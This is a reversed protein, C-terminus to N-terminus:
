TSCRVDASCRVSREAAGESGNPFDIEDPRRRSSSMSANVMTWRSPLSALGSSASLRSALEVALSGVAESPTAGSDGATSGSGTSGTRAAGTRRSGRRMLGVNPSQRGAAGREAHPRQDDRHLRRRGQGFRDPGLRRGDRGARLDQLLAPAPCRCRVITAAASAPDSSVGNRRSGARRDRSPRRLGSPTAPPTRQPPTRAPSPRRTDRTEGHQDVSTESAGGTGGCTDTASTGAGTARMISGDAGGFGAPARARPPRTASEVSGRATM